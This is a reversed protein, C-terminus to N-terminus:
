PLNAIVSDIARVTEGVKVKVDADLPLYVDLRSGFKIIGCQDGASVENGEASYCVIRRAFTGAIQRFLVEQGDENRIVTTSHENDESAKPKFALLHKGPHYKYYSIKGTLPWFNAHVDFFDMYVCVRKCERKLVENEYSTDVISVRGDAASSVTKGNGAKERSPIRFFALQFISLLWFVVAIVWSVWRVPIFRFGAWIVLANFFFLFLVLGYSNKDIKM